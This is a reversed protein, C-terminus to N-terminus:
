VALAAQSLERKEQKTWEEISSHGCAHIGMTGVTNTNLNKIGERKINLSANYDRDLKTGCSKCNYTRQEIPMKQKNGCGSCIQSSAFYKDIKHFHKSNWLCKYELMRGFEYWSVDCTNRNQNKDNKQLMGKIDLTEIIIGDYKTIMDHTTKHLFDKRINRVKRHVKRIKEKQKNRNNSSVNKVEEKIEKEVFEKRSLIKQEKKLKEIHKNLTQPNNIKTGDSLTAFEKIGVDIGVINDMRKIKEKINLECCISVYWQNGDQTITATKQIGEIERDKIDHAYFGSM